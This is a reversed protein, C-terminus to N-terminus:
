VKISSKILNLIKESVKEAAKQDHLAIPVRRLLIDDVSCAFEQEVAYVVEAEIYSYMKLLRNSYGKKAIDVVKKADIGYTKVLHDIIDVDLQSSECIESLIISLEEDNGSLCQSETSSKVFPIKAHNMVQDVLSEAMKRYLTWKGGYISFMGSTSVEIVYDRSLARTKAVGKQSALPRVGTWSSKIDAASISIDLYRNLHEILYRIEEKSPHLAVGATIKIDTTGVLTSEKWPLMFIVRDDTSKPILMGMDCRTLGRDLIIHSGISGSIVTECNPDDLTRLIDSQAGTANVVVKSTINWVKGSLVDTVEAGSIKGHQKKFGIVKVYNAVVAGLTFARMIIAINMRVDDFQGDYFLVGGKLSKRDVYPLFKKLKRKSLFQGKRLNKGWALLEYIKIGLYYYILDCWSYCPIAIPLVRSLHPAIKQFIKRENLADKVLSLQTYDWEKIAKELYRIGGHALKTSKGSSGSGFDGSDVLAVKLGRLSADLAIGAGTAGGGIVLLDFEQEELNVIQESRKNKM